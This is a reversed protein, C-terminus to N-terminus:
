QEGGASLSMSNPSARYPAHGAALVGGFTLLLLGANREMQLRQKQSLCDATKLLERRSIKGKKMM